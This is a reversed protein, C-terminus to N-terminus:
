PCATADLLDTVFAQVDDLTVGGIADVDACLCNGGNIICAVFSQIDDGDRTGDSNMDGRCGCSAAAGPWFGGVLQYTGGVLPAAVSGADPQGITGAVAYTGGVSAVSATAGGGDMTYWRIEHAAGAASPQLGSLIAAILVFTGSYRM